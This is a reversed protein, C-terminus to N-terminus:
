RLRPVVERGFRTVNEQLLQHPMAGIGYKLAIRTAGLGAMWRNIKSSILDPPGILMPGEPSSAEQFQSWTMPKWGREAGLSAFLEEAFPWATAQAEALTDAIFGSIHLTLEPVRSSEANFKAFYRGVQSAFRLPDGDRIALMVPLGLQAARHLTTESGSTAVRIPLPGGDVAPTLTKRGPEARTRTTQANDEILQLLETLRQDYASHRHVFDGGVLEFVDAYAGPGVSIEARGSSLADLTAFREYVYVPEHVTLISVAPGLHIHKTASAAAALVFLRTSRVLDPLEGM